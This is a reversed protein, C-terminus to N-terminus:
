FGVQMGAEPALSPLFGIPGGFAGTVKAGGFFAIRGATMRLGGGGAVFGPGAIAWAQADRTNSSAGALVVSVPVSTDFQSAGAAFFVYPVLGDVDVGQGLLYTGRAELHIPGFPKSAASGPYTNHVYGGRIGLLINPTIAYDFSVMLRINGVAAGGKVRDNKDLQIATNEATNSRSPYDSGDMNTCYYGSSNLPSGDTANLKCVDNGSPILNLDISGQFGFWFRKPDKPIEQCKGSACNGSRCQANDNCDEGERKGEDKNDRCGPFAPPCDAESCTAPPAAGPLRPADGQLTRRIAVKFTLARTGSTAILDGAANFGQLFYHLDGEVAEVCPVTGGWGKGHKTLDVPKFEVMAPGKYKVVVKVVAADGGYEVYIPVPTRVLQERPPSHTFDGRPLDGPVVVKRVKEWQAELDDTKYRPDISLAPDLRLADAFSAVGKDRHNGLIQMAGIDRHLEARLRTSCKDPTCSALAKQLKVGASTYDTALSDEEIAKKQLERAGREVQPDEALATTAFSVVFL